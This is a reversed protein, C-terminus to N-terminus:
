KEEMLKKVQGKWDDAIMKDKSVGSVKEALADMEEESMDIIQQYTTIGAENLKKEFAPGVGSIKKLDDKADEPAAPAEPAEKTKEAKPAAEEKVEGASKGNGNEALKGPAPVEAPTGKIQAARPATATDIKGTLLEAYVEPSVISVFNRDLRKKEFVVVGDMKAFLTHDKGIGVNRGPHYKTGRQRVIISGAQASQGGFIKVGLRKSESERGNRSSGMGKKHAM